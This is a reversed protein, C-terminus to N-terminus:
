TMFRDTPLPEMPGLVQHYQKAQRSLYSFGKWVLVGLGVLSVIGATLAGLPALHNDLNMAEDGSIKTVATIGTTSPPIVTMLNPISPTSEFKKQHNLCFQGIDRRWAELNNDNLETSNEKKIVSDDHFIKLFDESSQECAIDIANKNDANVLSTNAGSQKLLTASYKDDILAALMLPTYNKDSLENPSGAFNKIFSYTKNLVAQGLSSINLGGLINTLNGDVVAYKWPYRKLSKTGVETLSETGNDGKSAAEPLFIKKRNNLSERIKPM